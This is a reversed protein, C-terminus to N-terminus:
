NTFRDPRLAAIDLSTKGTLIGEAVLKGTIPGQTLGLMGHGSAIWVKPSTPTPGIMPVGDPAMPRLHCWRSRVPASEIGEMYRGAGVSLQRIRAPLQRLNFGSLEMTGALRVFDDIPTAFVREEVFLTPARIGPQPAEIDLHYGKGPQIPLRLDLQRALRPTWAGGAVVARDVELQDDATTIRVPGSGNALVQKVEVHERLEVGREAAARSLEVVFTAPNCYASEHFQVGGAVPTTVAPELERVEDASVERWTFGFGELLEAEHLVESLSKKSLCVELRGLRHYGFDFRDKFEEFLEFSAHGLLALLETARRVRPPSCAKHFRWLWCMLGWDWRMPIYLPSSRKMLLSLNRWIVGPQNLPMHGPTLQGANGQSSGSCIKNQELLTVRAGMEALYYATSVGIVGGGIVVVRSESM